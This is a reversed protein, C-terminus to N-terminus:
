FYILINIRKDDQLLDNRLFKFIDSNEGVRMRGFVRREEIKVEGGFTVWYNQDM